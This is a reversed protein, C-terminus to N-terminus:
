ALELPIKFLVGGISIIFSSNFPTNTATSVYGPDM